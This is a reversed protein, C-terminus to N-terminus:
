IIKTQRANITLGYNVSLYLRFCGVISGFYDSVRDTDM